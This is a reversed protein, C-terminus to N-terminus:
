TMSAVAIESQMSLLSGIMTKSRVLDPLMWRITRPSVTPEITDDPPHRGHRVRLADHLSHLRLHGARELCQPPLEGRHARPARRGTQEVPDADVIVARRRGDVLHRRNRHGVGPRDHDLRPFRALELGDLLG